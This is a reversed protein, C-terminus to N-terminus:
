DSHGCRESRSEGVETLFLQGLGLVTVGRQHLLLVAEDLGVAQYSM